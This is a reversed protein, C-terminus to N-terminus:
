YQVKILFLGKAPLALANLKEKGKMIKKVSDVSLKKRGVDFLLGAMIRVMKRLFAQGCIDIRIKHGKTKVKVSIVKRVTNDRDEDGSFAKFDHRGELLKAAKKMANVDLKSTYYYAYRAELPDPTNSNIIIYSYIKSRASYRSHFKDGVKIIKKIAISDPLLKNLAQQLRKLDFPKNLTFNATQGLAHVGADTRGAGNIKIEENLVLSLDKEIEGQITNKGPIRQWGHFDTGDYQIELKINM